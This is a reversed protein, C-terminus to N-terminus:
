TNKEKLKAEIRAAREVTYDAFNDVDGCRPCETLYDESWPCRGKPIEDWYDVFGCSCCQALNSDDIMTDENDLPM